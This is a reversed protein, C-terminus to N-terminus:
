PVTLSVGIKRMATTDPHYGLDAIAIAESIVKSDKIIAVPMTAPSPKAPAML